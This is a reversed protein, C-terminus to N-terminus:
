VDYIEEMGLMRTLLLAAEAQSVGQVYACLSISDGGKDGTASDAWKGNYRNVRFSGLHRDFPRPNLAVWERHIKKGRPLLRALVAPFNALAARNIADFDIRRKQRHSQLKCAKARKFAQSEFNPKANEASCNGGPFSLSFGAGVPPTQNTSRM